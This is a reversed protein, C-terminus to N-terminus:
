PLVERIEHEFVMHDFPLDSCLEFSDADCKAFRLAHPFWSYHCHSARFQWAEKHCPAWHAQMIAAHHRLAMEVEHGVYPALTDAIMEGHYKSCLRGFVDHFLAAVIWEPQRPDSEFERAALIATRVSHQYKDIKDSNVYDGRRCEL